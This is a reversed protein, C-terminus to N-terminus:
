RKRNWEYEEYNVINLATQLMCLKIIRTKYKMQRNLRKCLALFCIQIKSIQAIEGVFPGSERYITIEPQNIAQIHQLKM